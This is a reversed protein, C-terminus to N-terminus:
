LVAGLVQSRIFLKGLQGVTVYWFVDEWRKPVVM